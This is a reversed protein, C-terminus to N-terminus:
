REVELSNGLLKTSGLFVVRSDLSGRPEWDVVLDWKSRRPQDHPRSDPRKGRRPKCVPTAPGGPRLALWSGSPVGLRTSAVLSPLKKAAPNERYLRRPGAPTAAARHSGQAIEMSLWGAYAPRLFRPCLTLECPFIAPCPSRHRKTRQKHGDSLISGAGTRIERSDRSLCLVDGRQSRNPM